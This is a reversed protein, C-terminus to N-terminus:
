ESSNRINSPVNAEKILRSSLVMGSFSYTIHSSLNNGHNDRFIEPSPGLNARPHQLQLLEHWNDHSTFFDKIKKQDAVNCFTMMMSMMVKLSWFILGFINTLFLTANIRNRKLMSSYYSCSYCTVFDAVWSAPPKSNFFSFYKLTINFMKSYLFLFLM